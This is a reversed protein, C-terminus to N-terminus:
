PPLHRQSVTLASFWPFAMGSFTRNGTDASGAFPFRAPDAANRAAQEAREQRYDVVQRAIKPYFSVLGSHSCHSSHM